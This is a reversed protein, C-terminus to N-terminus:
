SEFSLIMTLNMINETESAEREPAETGRAVRRLGKKIREDLEYM